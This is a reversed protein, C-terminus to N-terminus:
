FKLEQLQSISRDLRSLEGLSSESLFLSRYYHNTRIATKRNLRNFSAYTEEKAVSIASSSAGAAAQIMAGGSSLASRYENTMETASAQANALQYSDADLFGEIEAKRASLTSTASDIAANWNSKQEAQQPGSLKSISAEFNEKIKKSEDSMDIYKYLITV